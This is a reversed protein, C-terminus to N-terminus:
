KNYSVTVTPRIIKDEGLVAFSQFVIYYKQGSQLYRDFSNNINDLYEITIPRCHLFNITSSSTVPCGKANYLGMYINTLIGGIVKVKGSLYVDSAGKPITFTFFKGDIGSLEIPKDVVTKKVAIAQANQGMFHIVLLATGFVVLTACIFLKRNNMNM